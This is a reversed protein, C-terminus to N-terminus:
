DPLQCLNAHRAQFDRVANLQRQANSIKRANVGEMEARTIWDSITGTALLDKFKIVFAPSNPGVEEETATAIFEDVREQLEEEDTLVLGYGDLGEVFELLDNVSNFQLM